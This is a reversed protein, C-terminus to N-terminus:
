DFWLLIYPYAKKYLRAFKKYDKSYIFYKKKGVYMSISSCNFKYFIIYFAEGLYKKNIKVYFSDRLYLARPILNKVFHKLVMMVVLNIKYNLIFKEM